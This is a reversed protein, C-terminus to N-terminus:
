HEHCHCGDEGCDCGGLLEDLTTENITDEIINHVSVTGDQKVSVIGQVNNAKAYALANEYNEDSLYQEAVFGENRLATSIQYCLAPSDGFVLTDAGPEFDLLQQRILVSILRDTGIAMGVAPVNKGFEGILGDYRGGSCVAFGIGHTIGKFIIGTYCNIGNVLSLDISIYQEFGYGSLLDYVNKLNELASLSQENLISRDIRDLIEIDGFLAPLELILEKVNPDIPFNGLFEEIALSDKKDVLKRLQEAQDDDFGAQSLIGKFFEVQGIEIQFQELGTAMLSEIACAIVESDALDNKIGILEIGAQCFERQGSSYSDVYRFVKGCYYLRKPYVGDSLRTAAMRAVSTTIDPRLVLIRGERDFFKYMTEQEIRGSETDYVDYFQIVPVEVVQYGFSAFVDSIANEINMKEACQKPLLDSTGEPTYLRWNSM